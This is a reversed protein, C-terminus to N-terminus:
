LWRYQFIKINSLNFFVTKSQSSCNIPPSLTRWMYLEDKFQMNLTELKTEHVFNNVYKCLMYTFNM